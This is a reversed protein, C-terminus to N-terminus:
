EKEEEKKEFCEYPFLSLSLKSHVSSIFLFFLVTSLCSASTAICTPLVDRRAQRASVSRVKHM